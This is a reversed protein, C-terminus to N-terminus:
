RFLSAVLEFPSALIFGLGILGVVSVWRPVIGLGATLEWNKVGPIMEDDNAFEPVKNEIYHLTLLTSVVYCVIGTGIALVHYSWYPLELSRVLSMAVLGGGITPILILAFKM